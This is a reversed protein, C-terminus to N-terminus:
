EEGFKKSQIYLNYDPVWRYLEELMDSGCVSCTCTEDHGDVNILDADESEIDTIKQQNKLYEWIDKLIGGFAFLRRHQLRKHLTLVIDDTLEPNDPVIYDKSKVTYKAIEAVAGDNLYDDDLSVEEFHDDKIVIGRERLIDAERQKNRKGKVVRIDVWPEYEARLCKQWINVWENHKVYGHSFYSPKVALLVHFHPHYTNEEHNVTVELARFFGLVNSKFRKLEILRRFSKMMLDLQDALNKSDVNKCTLTLFLWRIKMSQNAIHAVTKVQHAVALSRRWACMPCLRVRCFNAWTLRKEHGHPCSHFHLKSGCYRVATAKEFLQVRDYSDALLMTSYKHVHWPKDKGNKDKDVLMKANLYPPLNPISTM